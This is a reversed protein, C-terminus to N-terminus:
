SGRRVVKKGSAVVAQRYKSRLGKRRMWRRVANEAKRKETM